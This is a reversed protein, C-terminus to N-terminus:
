MGWVGCWGWTGLPLGIYGRVEDSVNVDRLVGGGEVPCLHMYEWSVM